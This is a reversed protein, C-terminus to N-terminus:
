KKMREKLEKLQISYTAGGHYINGDLELEELKVRRLLTSDDYAGGQLVGLDSSLNYDDDSYRVLYDNNTRVKDELRYTQLLPYYNDVARGNMPVLDVSLMYDNDEVTIMDVKSANKSVLDCDLPELANFIGDATVKVPGSFQGFWVDYTHSVEADEITSLIQLNYSTTKKLLDVYTTIYDKMSDGVDLVIKDNSISLLLSAIANLYNYSDIEVLEIEDKVNNTSVTFTDTNKFRNLLDLNAIAVQNILSSKVEWELIFFNMAEDIYEVLEESSNYVANMMPRATEIVQIHKDDKGSDAMIGTINVDNNKFISRSYITATDDDRSCMKLLYYLLLRIAKSMTLTYTTSTNPDTYVIDYDYTAKSYIYFLNDLIMNIRPFPMNDRAEKGSIHIVKTDVSLDSNANVSERVRDTLENISNYVTNHIYGNGVEMSVIEGLSIGALDYHENLSEALINDTSNYDFYKQTSDTVDEFYSPKSQKLVVKGVGINNPTMVNDIIQNFAENQGNNSKIARLNQYLWLRSKKNMYKTDIGLTSSFFSNLHFEHAKHTHINGLRALEIKTHLNSYLYALFVSVSYADTEMYRHNFWRHYIRETYASVEQIVSSDNDDAYVKSYSLISGNKAKYSVEMDIPNLIGKILLDNDPYQKLLKKYTTSFKGLDIRTRKYRAILEKTLPEYTNTEIVLIEMKENTHHYEGNLNLYYRWTRYDKDISRVGYEDFIRKNIMDSQHSSKIVISRVLSNLEPIYKMRM